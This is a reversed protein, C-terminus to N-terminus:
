GRNKGTHVNGEGNQKGEQQLILYNGARKYLEAANLRYALSCKKHKLIQIGELYTNQEQKVLPDLPLFDENDAQILDDVQAATLGAELGNVELLLVYEGERDATEDWLSELSFLPIGLNKAEQLSLIRKVQEMPILFCLGGAELLVCTEAM